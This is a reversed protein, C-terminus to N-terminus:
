SGPILVNVSVSLDGSSSVISLVNSNGVYQMARFSCEISNSGSNLTVKSTTVVSYSDTATTTVVVGQANGGAPPTYTVTTSVTFTGDGNDISIPASMLLFGSTNPICLGSGNDSYDQICTSVSCISGVCTAIGNPILKIKGCLWAGSSNVLVDGSSCSPLVAAKNQVSNDPFTIGDVGINVANSAAYGISSILFLVVLCTLMAIIRFQM